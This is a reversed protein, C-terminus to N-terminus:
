KTDIKNSTIYKKVLRELEEKTISIESNIKNIIERNMKKNFALYLPSSKLCGAERYKNGVIYKILIRDAVFTDIKSTDLMNSLRKHPNKGTLIITNTRKKALYSDLPEGYAYDQITGIGILNLSKVGMYNWNSSHLTFFCMQYDLLKKSKILGKSDSEGSSMLVDYKESKVGIIARSWPLLEIVAKMGIRKVILKVYETVIGPRNNDVCNYPCWETGAVLLDKAQANLQSFLFISFCCLILKAM